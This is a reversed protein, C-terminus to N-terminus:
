KTEKPLFTIDLKSDDNLVQNVFDVFQKKTLKNVIKDTESSYNFWNYESYNEMSSIWYYNDIQEESKTKFYAKKFEELYNDELEGAKIKNVERTVVNKLDKVREPDCNFRITYLYEQAPITNIYGYTSVGYTGGEDERVTETFKRDFINSMAGILVNNYPNDELTGHYEIIATSKPTVMPIEINTTLTETSYRINVDNIEEKNGTTPISAIYKEVLPKLEAENFNGVLFLKFDAANSFREKYIDILNASYKVNAFDDWRLPLGYPHASYRLTQMTDQIVSNPDNLRNKYFTEQRSIYRNFGKEDIRPNVFRLYYSKFNDELYSIKSIGAFAEKYYAAYMYDYLNKGDMFKDIQTQDYEGIGSNSVSNLAVNVKARDSANYKTLGGHSNFSFNYEDKKFNAYKVYVEMGNSLTWKECDLAKIKETKVISGQKAPRELLDSIIDSAKYENYSKKEVSALLGNLEKESPLTVNEPASITLVRNNNKYLKALIGNVEELSVDKLHQEAFTKALLPNIIVEDDNFASVLQYCYNGSEETEREKIASEIYRMSVEKANELESQHFGHQVARMYEEIMITLSEKIKDGKPYSYLYLGSKEPMINFHAWGGFSMPQGENSIRETIRENLMSFTINEIYSKRLDDFTRDPTLAKDKFILNMQIYRAEKDTFLGFDTGKQDPINQATRPNRTSPKEIGSFTAKIRKEIDEPDIDGVVVIAQLDPRYWKNYFDRLRQCEVNDVIDVDGIVNHKAYKSDKYLVMNISDNIRSSGSNRARWEEHIVGREKNIEEDDYSVYAAWDRLIYLATDVYAMNDTPVKKLTYVTENYYTWANISPGFEMGISQLYNIVGKDPFNKTGNFAMHECFHALGNQDADEQMSGANVVLWCEARQEPKKNKKIYYTLGNDLKGVKFTEDFPIKDTLKITKQSFGWLAILSVLIVSITKKM